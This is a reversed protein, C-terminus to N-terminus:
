KVEKKRHYEKKRYEAIRKKNKQFYEKQYAKREEKHRKLYERQLQRHKEPHAKNYANSREALKKKNNLIRDILNIYDIFDYYTIKMGDVEISKTKKKGFIAKENMGIINEIKIMLHIDENRMFM